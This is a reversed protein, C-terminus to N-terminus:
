RHRDPAARGPPETRGALDAVVRVVIASVTRWTIRQLIALTSLAIHCALWAATDEFGISFRSGHRAWAGGRGDGWARRV